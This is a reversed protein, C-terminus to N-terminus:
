KKTLFDRTMWEILDNMHSPNRFSYESEPPNAIFWEVGGTTGDVLGMTMFTPNMPLVAVGTAAGMVVNWWFLATRGATAEYDLGHIFLLADAQCANALARVDQGLTYDFNKLKDPFTNAGPYAHALASAAIAGYLGSNVDWLEKQHEKLWQEDIFKIDFGYRAALHKELAEQTLKKATDSWEDMLERVGGATLQYVEIDAPMVAIIKTRGIHADFTPSKKVLSVCGSTSILIFFIFPFHVNGWFLCRQKKSMQEDIAM